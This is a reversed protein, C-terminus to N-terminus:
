DQMIIKSAVFFTRRAQKAVVGSVCAVTQGPTLKMKEVSDLGAIKVILKGGGAAIDIRDLELDCLVIEAPGVDISQGMNLKPDRIVQCVSVLSGNHSAANESTSDAGVGAAVPAAAVIEM